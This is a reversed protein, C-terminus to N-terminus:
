LLGLGFLDDRPEDFSCSGFGCLYRSRLSRIAGIEVKLDQWAFGTEDFGFASPDTERIILSIDPIQLDHSHALLGAGFVNLFGHMMVDIENNRHRMPHHLGATFKM